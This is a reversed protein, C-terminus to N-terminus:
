KDRDFSNILNAKCRSQSNFSKYILKNKNKKLHRDICNASANLTGDYFWKINVDTKSYKIDKIKTKEKISTKKPIKGVIYNGDFDEPFQTFDEYNTHLSGWFRPVM